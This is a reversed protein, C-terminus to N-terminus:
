LQEGSNFPNFANGDGEIDDLDNLSPQGQGQQPPAGQQGQPM